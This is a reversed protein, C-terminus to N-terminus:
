SSSSISDARRKRIAERSSSISRLTVTKARYLFYFYGLGCSAGLSGVVYDVTRLKGTQAAIVFCAICSGLSVLALVALAVLLLTWGPVEVDTTSTM